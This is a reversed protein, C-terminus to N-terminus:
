RSLFAEHGAKLRDHADPAASRTLVRAEFTASSKSKVFAFPNQRGMGVFVDIHTKKIAGGRDAAFFYGDHTADSGDPLTLSTGRAAPIYVLSGFPITKPDVAISRYPILVMDRVGDGYPGIALGYRTRGIAPHKPYVPTCDVETNKQTGAYNFTATDGGDLTVIVTGQMAAECWDRRSLKAGLAVDKMDRLAFGDAAHSVKPIYYYTAWLDEAKTQALKPEPLDFVLARAVLSEPTPKAPTPKAGGSGSSVASSPAAGEGM